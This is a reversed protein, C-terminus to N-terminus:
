ARFADALSGKPTRPSRIQLRHKRAHTAMLPLQEFGAAGVGGAADTAMEHELTGAACDSSPVGTITV